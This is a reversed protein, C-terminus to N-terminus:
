PRRPRGSRLAVIVMAGITLAGAISGAIFARTPQDHRSGTASPSGAATSSDQAMALERMMGKGILRDLMPAVFSSMRTFLPATLKEISRAALVLRAGKAALARAAAAGIGSSAGAVIIVSDKIRMQVEENDLTGSYQKYCRCLYQVACLFM